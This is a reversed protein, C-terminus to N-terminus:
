QAEFSLRRDMPNSDRLGRRNLLYDYSRGGSLWDATLRFKQIVSADRKSQIFPLEENRLQKFPRVIVHNKEATFFFLFYPGNVALFECCNPERDLIFWLDAIFVTLAEIVYKVSFL